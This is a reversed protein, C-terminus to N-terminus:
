RDWATLGGAVTVVLLTAFALVRELESCDGDLSDGDGGTKAEAPPRHTSLYAVVAAQVAQQHSPGYSAILQHRTHWTPRLDSSCTALSTLRPLHMADDNTRRMKLDKLKGRKLLRAPHM